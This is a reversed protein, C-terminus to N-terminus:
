ICFALVCLFRTVKIVASVDSKGGCLGSGQTNHSKRTRSFGFDGIKLLRNQGTIFINDPKLDRHMKSNKHIHELGSFVCAFNGITKLLILIFAGECIQRFFKQVLLVDEYLLGDDIAHRLTRNECFEM